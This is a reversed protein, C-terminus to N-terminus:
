GTLGPWAPVFDDAATAAQVPPTITLSPGTQRRGLLGDTMVWHLQKAIVPMNNSDVIFGAYFGM